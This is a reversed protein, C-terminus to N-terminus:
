RENAFQGLLEHAPDRALRRAPGLAALGAAGLALAGLIAWQGPFMFMPLRWGFAAVNVVALLAWALVLGFPVAMATTLAALCLARLVELRALHARTLGLAWVPALQPLRMRALTLLSTLIAFGAVGLTLGNLAATIAFTREFVGLSFQRIQAPRMIFAPDLDFRRAMDRALVTAADPDSLRLAHRLRPTEPHAQLLRQPAMMVQPNPNGYDSYVGVVTVVGAAGLDIVSGPWVSHRRAMQENILVGSNQGVRDWADPLARLMPWHNRFVPDDVVSYLEIRAGRWNAGTHWVPLTAKVESRHTLWARLDRAQDEDRATIYLDAALRQDLWGVFTLRFSSVMTGVGVNASLALLLAMMALSLGSVQQQTDAWFWRSVPGRARRGLWATTQSLAFPLVLASGALLCGLLAFGAMLGQGRWALGASALLLIIGAMAQYRAIRQGARSWARPRAPALLPMRAFRVVSTAASAATGALAMGMGSLLWESRITLSGDIQAGYLGNLTSSVDAILLRAVGYGMLGGLGGAVLALAGLEAALAIGLSRLPVGVARLTRLVSRRQEFALGVAGHVIFLGVAFCLLGFATLNMHFSDTLRQNARGEAPREFLEPAVEDLPRRTLPQQAAIILADFAVERGLIRAAVPIDALVDGIAIAPDSRRDIGPLDPIRTGPHAYLATPDAILAATSGPPAFQQSGILDMGFVRLKRAGKRLEGQILPYVQWGARRLAVFEAVTIRRGPAVLRGSDATALTASAREYSARAETNLAQVGTWLATALALGALLTFAQVPQRRWHSLLVLFALRTTM